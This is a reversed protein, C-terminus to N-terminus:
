CYAVAAGTFAVDLDLVKRLTWYKEGNEQSWKQLQTVIHSDLPWDKENVYEVNQFNGELVKKQKDIDSLSIYPIIFIGDDLLYDKASTIIKEILLMGDLGTNCSVGKYWDSHSAVIESISAVDSIILDFKEGAWPEFLGGVRLDFINKADNKIAIGISENSIDSGSFSWSQFKKFLNSSINFDGCGVELCRGKLRGKKLLVEAVTIELIKSTLNRKFITM